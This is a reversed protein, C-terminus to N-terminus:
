GESYGWVLPEHPRGPLFGIRRRPYDLVVRFQRLFSYGLIGDITTGAAQSTYDFVDVAGADLDHVVQGAVELRDLVFTEARLEGQVGMAEIPSGSLGLEHAVGPALVTSSAGTDVLFRYPGRGNVRVPLLIFAGGLGTEFPTEAHAVTGTSASLRLRSLQYDIEIRYQRLIHFGLNGALGVGIREGIQDIADLVGAQVNELRWDGLEVADLRVVPFPSSGGVTSVGLTRQCSPSILMEVPAGNGTDVILDFVGQGNIRSQLVLLPADPSAIRFPVTFEM